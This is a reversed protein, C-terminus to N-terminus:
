AGAGAADRKERYKRAAEPGGLAYSKVEDPDFYMRKGPGRGHPAICSLVGAKEYAAVVEVSVTLAEAAERPTMRFPGASM